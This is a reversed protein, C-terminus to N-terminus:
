VYARAETMELVSYFTFFSIKYCLAMCLFVTTFLIIIVQCIGMIQFRYLETKNWHIFLSKTLATISHFSLLFNIITIISGSSELIRVHWKWYLKVFKTKIILSRHLYMDNQLGREKDQGKVFVLDMGPCVDRLFRRNDKWSYEKRSQFKCCM